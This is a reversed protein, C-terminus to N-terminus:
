LLVARVKSMEQLERTIEQPLEVNPDDEAAAATRKLHMM